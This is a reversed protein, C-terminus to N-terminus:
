LIKKQHAFICNNLVPKKAMTLNSSPYVCTIARHKYIKFHDTKLSHNSDQQLGIFVTLMQLM